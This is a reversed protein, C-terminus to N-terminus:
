LELVWGLGLESLKGPTPNGTEPSWNMMEYYTKVAKEFDKKPVHLGKAKEPGPMPKFVREPLTDSDSTIGERANFARMLNVRREGAKMLEWFSM